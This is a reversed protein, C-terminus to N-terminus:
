ILITINIYFKNLTQLYIMKVEDREFFDWKMEKMTKKTTAGRTLAGKGVTDNRFM